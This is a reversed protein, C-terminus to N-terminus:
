FTPPQKGPETGLGDGKLPGWAEYLLATVPCLPCCSLAGLSCPSRGRACLVRCAVTLQPWFPFSVQDCLELFIPPSPAPFVPPFVAMKCLLSWSAGSICFVPVPQYGGSFEPSWSCLPCTWVGGRSIWPSLFHCLHVLLCFCLGSSSWGSSGSSSLEPSLCSLSLPGPHDQLVALLRPCM